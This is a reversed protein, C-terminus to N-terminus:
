GCIVPPPSAARLSIAAIKMLRFKWRTSAIIRKIVEQALTSNTTIVAELADLIQQEVLSGMELVKARVNELEADYQKYIHEKQM